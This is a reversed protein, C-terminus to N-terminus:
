QEDAKKPPEKTTEVPKDSSKAGCIPCSEESEAEAMFLESAKWWPEIDHYGVWDAAERLAWGLWGYLRVGGWLVASWHEGAPYVYVPRKPRYVKPVGGHALRKLNEALFVADHLATQAMGSYETLANDGVVYINEAPENKARLFEDVPIKGHELTFNNDALFRNSAMGATWIVTHSKLPRDNIILGDATEGQVRQNLYVKIGERRLHRTVAVSLDRPMRPLLRPAAEVLEINIKRDKIGHHKMIWRLYHPLAGVLEIGTPGGGIVVYNQDPKREDLMQKHLHAKLAEAEDISKIGYSYKELGEIGFYNTISGLAIVLIDYPVKKKSATVVTNTARDLKEARDNLLTVPKGEFIDSLPIISAKRSGGTASRYLAPYYKFETKDSMLTVDYASSDYLDLATKIGGFGGGLILVKKKQMELAM